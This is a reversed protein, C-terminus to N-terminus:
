VLSHCVVWWHQLKIGGLQILLGDQIARFYMGQLYTSGKSM